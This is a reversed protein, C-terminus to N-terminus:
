RVCVVQDKYKLDIYRYHEWGEYALGGRYFAMLKELKAEFGDLGGLLVVQDGARPVIEVEPGGPSGNDAKVNIQVIFANWFRDEEVFKVFNILKALFLYNKSVKKEDGGATEELSGIFDRAFPPEVIGTVVPVYEVYHRQLPLIYRDETVYFNYGNVSSVRMMPRRQNLEVHLTGDMSVYVRASRVFGRRTVFRELERTDLSGIQQRGLQMNEASFWMRVMEPTIFKLEDGDEVRVQVEKCHVERKMRGVYGSVVIFYAAIAGWAVTSLVLSWFRKM